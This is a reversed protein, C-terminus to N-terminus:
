PPMTSTGTLPDILQGPHTVTGGSNPLAPSDGWGGSAMERIHTLLSVMLTQRPTQSHCHNAWHKGRCCHPCLGPLWAAIPSLASSGQGGSTAQQKCVKAFDGPKGCISCSEKGKGESHDSQLVEKLAALTVGQVYTPGIDACIHIFDSISGKEQLPASGGSM